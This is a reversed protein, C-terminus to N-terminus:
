GRTAQDEPEVQLDGAMQLADIVTNGTLTNVNSDICDQVLNARLRGDPALDVLEKDVGQIMCATIQNSSQEQAMTNLDRDPQIGVLENMQDLMERHHATVLM